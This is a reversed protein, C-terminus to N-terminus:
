PITEKGENRYLNMECKGDMRKATKISKRAHTRTMKYIFVIYLM